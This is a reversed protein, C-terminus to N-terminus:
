FYFRVETNLREALQAARQIKKFVADQHHRSFRETIRELQTLQWGSPIKEDEYEDILVDCCSNIEDIWGSTNLVHFEQDSIHEEALDHERAQNYDLRQAAAPSKPVTIVKRSVGM